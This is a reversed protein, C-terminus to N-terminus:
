VIQANIYREIDEPSAEADKYDLNGTYGLIIYKTGRNWKRTVLYVFMGNDPSTYFLSCQGYEVLRNSQWNPLMDKIFAEIEENSTHAEWQRKNMVFKLRSLPNTDEEYEYIEYLWKREDETTFLGAIKSEGYNKPMTFWGFQKVMSSPKIVCRMDDSLIDASVGRLHIDNFDFNTTTVDM